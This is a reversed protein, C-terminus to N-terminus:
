IGCLWWTGLTIGLVILAIGAVGIWFTRWGVEVRIYDRFSM